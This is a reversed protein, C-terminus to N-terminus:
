DNTMRDDRRQDFLADAAAEKEEQAELRAAFLAAEDLEALGFSNHNLRWIAEFAKPSFKVPDPITRCDTSKATAEVYEVTPPVEPDIRTAKQGPYVRATVTWQIEIGDLEQYNIVSVLRV